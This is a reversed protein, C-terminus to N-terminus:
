GEWIKRILALKREVTRLTCGRRDAIEANSEGQMKLVAIEQLEQDGLGELREQFEEM